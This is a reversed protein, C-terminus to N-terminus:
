KVERQAVTEVHQSTTIHGRSAGGEQKGWSTTADGQQRWRREVHRRLAAKGRITGGEQKDQCIAVDGRTPVGGRLASAPQVNGRMMGGEHKVWSTATDGRTAVVMVWQLQVAMEGDIHCSIFIGLSM